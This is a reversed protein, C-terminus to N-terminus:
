APAAAAVVIAAQDVLHKVQDYRLGHQAGANKRDMGDAMHQAISPLRPDVRALRQMLDEDSIRDLAYKELDLPDIVAGNMEDDEDFQEDLGVHQTALLNDFSSLSSLKPEPIKISSIQPYIGKRQVDSRIWQTACTTFSNGTAADFKDIARDLGELGAQFVDCFCATAPLKPSWQLFYTEAIRFALRCTGLIVRERARADGAQAQAVNKLLEQRTPLHSQNLIQAAGDRKSRAISQNATNRNM